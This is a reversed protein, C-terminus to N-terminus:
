EQFSFMMKRSFCMSRSDLSIFGLVGGVNGDDVAVPLLEDDDEEPVELWRRPCVSPLLLM